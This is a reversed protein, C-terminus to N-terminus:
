GYREAVRVAAAGYRGGCRGRGGADNRKGFFPGASSDDRVTHDLGGGVCDVLRTVTVPRDLAPSLVHALLAPSERADIRNTVPVGRISPGYGAGACSVVRSRVHRLRPVQRSVASQRQALLADWCDVVATLQWPPAM